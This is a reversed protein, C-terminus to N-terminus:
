IKLASLHIFCVFFAGNWAQLPFSGKIADHYDDEVKRGISNLKNNNKKACISMMLKFPESIKKKTKVDTTIKILIDNIVVNEEPPLNESRITSNRTAVNILSM